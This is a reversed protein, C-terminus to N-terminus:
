KIDPDDRKAKEYQRRDQRAEVALLIFFVFLLVGALGWCILAAAPVGAWIFIGGLVALLCLVGCIVAGPGLMNLKKM